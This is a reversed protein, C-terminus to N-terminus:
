NKDNPEKHENRLSISWWFDLNFVLESKLQLIKKKSKFIKNLFKKYILNKLKYVKKQPAMLSYHNKKIKITHLISNSNCDPPM